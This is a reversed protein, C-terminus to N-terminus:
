PRRGGLCGSRSPRRCEGHGESDVVAVALSAKCPRELCPRPRQLPCVSRTVSNQSISSRAERRPVVFDSKHELQNRERNGPAIPFPEIGKCTCRNRCDQPRARRQRSHDLDLYLIPLQPAQGKQWLRVINVAKGLEERIEAPTYPSILGTM